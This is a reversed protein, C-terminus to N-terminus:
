DTRLCDAPDLRSARSSPILTAAIGTVALAAAAVALIVPDNAQVGFLLAAAGRTLVLSGLAGASLGFALLVGLQRLFLALVARRNAGLAIRIGIENRRSAAIYSIVGYLGLTALAFALVGFFGSVWALLRERLLRENVMARLEVQEMRGAPWNQSIVRHIEAMAQGTPISSRTVIAMGPGWQPNQLEPAYAIPPDEARLETYKTDGVVGIVQYTVDPYGPEALSHVTRGVPNEGDFVKKVFTENVLLVKVSTASDHDNFDRGARLPIQMTKWYGPSVWTFQPGVRAGDARQVM